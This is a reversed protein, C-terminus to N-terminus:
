NMPTRFCRDNSDIDAEAIGCYLGVNSVESGDENFIKCNSHILEVDKWVQKPEDYELRKFKNIMTGLDM